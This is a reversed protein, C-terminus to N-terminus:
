FDAYIYGAQEVEARRLDFLDEMLLAREQLLRHPIAPDSSNLSVPILGEDILAIQDELETTLGFSGVEVVRGPGSFDIMPLSRLREEQFQSFAVLAEMDMQELQQGFDVAAGGATESAIQSPPRSARSSSSVSEGRFVAAEPGPNRADADIDTGAFFGAGMQLGVVAVAISAAVAMGGGWYRRRRSELQRWAEYRDLVREWGGDPAKKPPLARLAGAIGGDEAFSNETQSSTM